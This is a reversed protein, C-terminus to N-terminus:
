AEVEMLIKDDVRWYGPIAQLDTHIDTTFRVRFYFQYDARIIEGGAMAGNPASGGTWDILGTTDDLTFHTDETKVVGDLTVTPAYIGSPMIEKRDETWAQTEGKFYTKQLQTSTEGAVATHDWDTLGCAFDDRERWLFTDYQGRARDFLENFKDRDPKTLVQWNPFWYRVPQEYIQNRQEQGPGDYPAVDTKWRKRMKVPYQEGYEAGIFDTIVINM